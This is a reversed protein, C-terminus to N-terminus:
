TKPNPCSTLVNRLSPPCECAEKQKSSPQVFFVPNILIPNILPLLLWKSPSSLSQAPHPPPGPSSDPRRPEWEPAHHASTITRECLHFASPFVQGAANPHTETIRSVDMYIVSVQPHATGPRAPGRCGTWVAGWSQSQSRPGAVPGGWVLFLGRNLTSQHPQSPTEHRSYTDPGRGPCPLYEQEHHPALTGEAAKRVTKGKPSPNWVLSWFTSVHIGLSFVALAQGIERWTVSLRTSSKQRPLVM